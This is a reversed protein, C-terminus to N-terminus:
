EGKESKDQESKLKKPVQRKRFSLGAIESFGIVFKWACHASQDRNFILYGKPFHLIRSATNARLFSRWIVLLILVLLIVLVQIFGLFLGLLKSTLNQSSAAHSQYFHNIDIFNVKPFAFNSITEFATFFLALPLWVGTNDSSAKFRCTQHCDHFTQLISEGIFVWIIARFAKQLISEGIFM